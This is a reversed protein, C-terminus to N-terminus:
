DGDGERLSRNRRIVALASDMAHRMKTQALQLGHEAAAVADYPPSSPDIFRLLGAAFFDGAGTDEVIEIDTLRAEARVVVPSSEPDAYIHVEDSRKLVFVAPSQSRRRPLQSYVIAMQAEHPPAKDPDEWCPQTLRALEGENLLLLDAWALVDLVASRHGYESRLARTAWIYGPDISILPLDVDEDVAAELLQAIAEIASPDVLSTIHLIEAEALIDFVDSQQTAVHEAFTSNAGPWVKLSRGVEGPDVAVCIGPQMGSMWKVNSWNLDSERRIVAIPEDVSHSIWDVRSTSGAVGIFATRDGDAQLARCVNLASGGVSPRWPREDALVLEVLRMIEPYTADEETNPEFDNLIAARTTDDRRSLVERTVIVDCNIAGILVVRSPAWEKRRTEAQEQSELFERNYLKLLAERHEPFVTVLKEVTSRSVHARSNEIASIRSGKAGPKGWGDQYVESQSKGSGWRLRKLLSRLEPFDTYRVTM